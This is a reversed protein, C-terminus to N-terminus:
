PLTGKFSVFHISQPSNPQPFLHMRKIPLIHPLLLHRRVEEDRCNHTLYFDHLLLGASVVLNSFLIPIKPPKLSELKEIGSHGHLFLSIPPSRPSYKGEQAEIKQGLCFVPFSVNMFVCDELKWDKDYIVWCSMCTDNKKEEVTLM